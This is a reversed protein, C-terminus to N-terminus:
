RQLYARGFIIDLGNECVLDVNLLIFGNLKERNNGHRHHGGCENACDITHVKVIHRFRM